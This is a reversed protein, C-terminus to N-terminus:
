DGTASVCLRIAAATGAAAREAPHRCRNRGARPGRPEQSSVSCGLSITLPRSVSCWRLCVGAPLEEKASVQQGRKGETAASGMALM